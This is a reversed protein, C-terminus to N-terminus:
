RAHMCAHHVQRLHNSVVPTVRGTQIKCRNAALKLWTPVSLVHAKKPCNPESGRIQGRIWWMVERSNQHWSPANKESQWSADCITSDELLPDYSHVSWLHSSDKSWQGPLLFSLNQQKSRYIENRDWYFVCYYSVFIASWSSMMNM